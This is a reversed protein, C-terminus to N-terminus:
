FTWRGLLLDHLGVAISAAASYISVGYRSDIVLESRKIDQSVASVMLYWLRFEM